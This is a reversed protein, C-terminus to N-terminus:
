YSKPTLLAKTVGLAIFSIIIVAILTKHRLLAMAIDILSFSDDTSYSAEHIYVPKLEQAKDNKMFNM